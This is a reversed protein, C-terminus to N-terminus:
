TTFYLKESYNHAYGFYIYVVSSKGGAFIQSQNICMDPPTTASCGGSWVTHRIFLSAMRKDVLLQEIDFFVLSCHSCQWNVKLEIMFHDTDDCGDHNVGFKV